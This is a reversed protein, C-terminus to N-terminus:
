LKDNNYAKEKELVLKKLLFSPASFSFDERM